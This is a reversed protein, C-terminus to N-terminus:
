LLLGAPRLKPDPFVHHLCPRELSQISARLPLVQQSLPRAVERKGTREKVLKVCRRLGMEGKLIQRHPVDVRELAILWDELIHPTDQPPQCRPGM